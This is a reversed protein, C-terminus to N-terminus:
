KSPRLAFVITNSLQIQQELNVHIEAPREFQYDDGPAHM